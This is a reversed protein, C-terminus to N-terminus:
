IAKTTDGLLINRERTYIIVLKQVNSYHVDSPRPPITWCSTGRMPTYQSHQTKGSPRPPIAWCSTGRM